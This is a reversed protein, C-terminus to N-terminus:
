AYAGADGIPQRSTTFTTTNRRFNWRRSVVVTGVDTYGAATIVGDLYTGPPYALTIGQITFQAEARQQDLGEATLDGKDWISARDDRWIVPDASTVLLDAGDDTVDYITYPAIIWVEASTDEIIYPRGIEAAGAPYLPIRYRLNNGTPFMATGYYRTYRWAPDTGTNRNDADFLDLAAVHPIRTKVTVDMAHRGFRVAANPLELAAMQRANAFTWVLPDAAEDEVTGIIVFPKRLTPVAGAVTREWFPIMSNFSRAGNYVLQAPADYWINCWDDVYPSAAFYPVTEGDGLLFPWLGLPYDPTPLGFLSFVDQYKARVRKSDAIKADSANLALYETEDAAKWKPVLPAFEVWTTDDTSFSCCMRVPGGRVEVSDYNATEPFKIYDIKVRKDYRADLTAHNSNNRGLFSDVVIWIDEVGDTTTYWLLGREKRILADLIRLVSRGHLRWTDYMYELPGPDGDIWEALGTLFAWPTSYGGLDFGNAITDLIYRLIDYNNWAYWTPDSEGSAAVPAQFYYAGTMAEGGVTWSTVDASRNGDIGGGQKSQRNFPVPTDVWGVVGDSDVLSGQAVMRDWLTELPRATFTQVGSSTTGGDPMVTEEPVWGIWLPDGPPETDIGSSLYITNPRVRRVAIYAGKITLHQFWAFTFTGPQAINGFRWIFPMDGSGNGLADGGNDAVLYPIWTWVGSGDPTDPLWSSKVWVTAISEEVVTQASGGYVDIMAM